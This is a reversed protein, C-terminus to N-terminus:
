RRGMGFTVLRPDREPEHDDTKIFREPKFEEPDKYVSPDHLFHRFLPINVTLLYSPHEVLKGYTLRFSLIRRYTMAESHLIKPPRVSLQM